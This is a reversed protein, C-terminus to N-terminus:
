RSGGSIKNAFIVDADAPLVAKGTAAKSNVLVSGDKHSLKAAALLDNVTSGEPLTYTKRRGGFPLLTVSISKKASQGAQKETGAAKSGGPNTLVSRSGPKGTKKKGASAPKTATRTKPM